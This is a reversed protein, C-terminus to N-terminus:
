RRGRGIAVCAIDDAQQEGQAFDDVAAFIHLILEAITL